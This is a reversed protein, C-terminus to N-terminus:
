GSLSERKRERKPKKRIGREGDRQGSGTKREEERKWGRVKERKTVDRSEESLAESM